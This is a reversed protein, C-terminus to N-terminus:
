SISLLEAPKLACAVFQCRLKNSQVAKPSAQWILTYMACTRILIEFLFCRFPASNTPVAANMQQLLPSETFTPSSQTHLFAGASGLHDSQPRGPRCWTTALPAGSSAGRPCHSRSSSSGGAVLLRCVIQLLSGGPTWLGWLNAQCGLRGIHLSPRRWSCTRAALSVVSRGSPSMGRGVAWCGPLRRWPWAGGGARCCYCWWHLARAGPPLSWGGTGSWHLGCRPRSSRWGVTCKWAPWWLGVTWARGAASAENAWKRLLRSVSAGLHLRAPCGQPRPCPQLPYICDM